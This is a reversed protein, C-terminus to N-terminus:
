LPRLAKLLRGTAGATTDPALANSYRIWRSGPISRATGPSTDVSVLEVPDVVLKPTDESITM